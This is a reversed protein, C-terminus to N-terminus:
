FKKGGEKLRNEIKHDSRIANFALKEEIAGALDYDHKECYAVIYALAKSLHRTDVSACSLGHEMLHFLAVAVNDHIPTLRRMISLDIDYGGALDLIRIFADAMEVEAMKRHPLKDDMLNKREGELAEVVESVILASLERSSRKIREGTKLDVWWKENAAHIRNKLDNLSENTYNEFLNM